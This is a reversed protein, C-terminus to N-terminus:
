NKKHSLPSLITKYVEDCLVFKPPKFHSYFYSNVAKAPDPTQDEAGYFLPV